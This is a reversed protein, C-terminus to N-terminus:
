AYMKEILDLINNFDMDEVDSFEETEFGVNLVYLFSAFDYIVPENRKGELNEKISGTKAVLCLYQYDRSICSTKNNPHAYDLHQTPTLAILNELYAAIVPYEHAPFIHHMQSALDAMHRAENLESRGGRYKNNFNKLNKKAREVRYKSMAEKSRLAQAMKYENRTQDKPKATLIDRWNKQNYMLMNQTIVDDSIRGRATGRKKYKCALPNVIKAFIRGCEVAGNIETNKITFDVFAKKLKEYSAKDQREFFQEFAWYLDSDKLTKEIYLCLFSFSNRERFSVYELLERDGVTYFNRNNKKVEVLVGAAALLKIPQGFYKDYENRAKWKPDPKSFIEQVNQAAYASFWIDKVTFERDPFIKIYELICDAVLCVVDMTCKQDIWRGNRTQRVDYNRQNLFTQIDREM